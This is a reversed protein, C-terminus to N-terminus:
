PSVGAKEKEKVCGGIFGLDAIESCSACSPISASELGIRRGGKKEKEKKPRGLDTAKEIMVSSITSSKGIAAAM